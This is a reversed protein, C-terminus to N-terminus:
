QLMDEIPSSLYTEEILINHVNLWSMKHDPDFCDLKEYITLMPLIAM